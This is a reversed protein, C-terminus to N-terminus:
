LNIKINKNEKIVKLEIKKLINKNKKIFKKQNLHWTIKRNMNLKLDKKSLGDDRSYRRKWKLTNDNILLGVKYGFKWVRIALDKDSFHDSEGINAFMQWGGIEEFVKKKIIIPGTKVWTCFFFNTNFRSKIKSFDILKFGINNLNNNKISLYGGGNLSVMSLNKYKKFIKIVDRYWKDDEPALDDDQTFILYDTSQSISAGSIYGKTEGLNSTVILKDNAENLNKFIKDSNKGNDNVIIIEVNNGLVRLNEITKILTNYAVFHNIIISTKPAKNYNYTYIGNTPYKNSLIKKKKYKKKKFLSKFIM